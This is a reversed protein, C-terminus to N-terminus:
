DEKVKKIINKKVNPNKIAPATVCLKENLKLPKKPYPRSRRFIGLLFSNVKISKPLFKGLTYSFGVSEDIINTWITM